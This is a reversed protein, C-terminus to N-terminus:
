KKVKRGNQEEIKESSKKIYPLFDIVVCRFLNTTNSYQFVKCWTFFLLAKFIFSQNKVVVCNKSSYFLKLM